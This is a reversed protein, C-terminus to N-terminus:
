PLRAVVVTDIAPRPAGSVDRLPELAVQIALRADIAALDNVINAATYLIEPNQPGGVGEAINRTNHGIVLLRGGPELAAVAHALVARRSDPLLHLYALM